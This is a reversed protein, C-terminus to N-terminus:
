AAPKLLTRINELREPDAGNRVAERLLAQARRSVEARCRGQPLANSRVLKLLSAAADLPDGSRRAIADLLRSETLVAEGLQDIRACVADRDQPEFSCDLTRQQLAALRALTEGPAAARKIESEIQHAGLRARLYAALKRKSGEGAIATELRLLRAAADLSDDAGSLAEDISEQAVLRGSRYIFAEATEELPIDAGTLRIMRDALSRLLAVEAWIDGPKLRQPRKLDALVRHALAARARPFRGQRFHSALRAAVGELKESGVPAIITEVYLDVLDGGDSAEPALSAASARVDLFETLFEDLEGLMAKPKDPGILSEALDLLLGIKASWGRTGSLADAILAGRRYAGGKELKAAARAFSEKGLKPLRGKRGDEIVRSLAKESLETLRKVFAQVNAQYHEAQAIATKQIAHQLSTHAAELREALGPSHLLELPTATERTLWPELTRAIVKRSHVTWLDEPTSCPPEAEKMLRGSSKHDAGEGRAFITVANFVREIEDFTEKNVRVAARPHRKLMQMAMDVADDRCDTACEMSWADRIRRKLFVEYHVHEESLPAPEGASPNSTEPRDKDATM